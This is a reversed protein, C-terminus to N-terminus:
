IIGHSQVYNTMFFGCKIIIPFTFLKMMCGFTFIGPEIIVIDKAHNCQFPKFSVTRANQDFGVLFDQQALSGYAIFSESVEYALCTVPGWTLFANFRKLPVNGGRFNAVISPLQLSQDKTFCLELLRDPDPVELAHTQMRVAQKIQTYFHRPLSTLATGSDIMINGQEVAGSRGTFPIRTRGVTFAELTVHYFNGIQGPVLLVTITGPGRVVAMSEPGAGLGIIRSGFEGFHGNNGMGCGFIYNPIQVTSHTTSDMQVTETSLLGRTHRRRLSHRPPLTWEPVRYWELSSVAPVPRMPTDPLEVLCVSRAIARRITETQSLYPNYFADRQYLNATFGSINQAVSFDTLIFFILLSDLFCCSAIYTAM